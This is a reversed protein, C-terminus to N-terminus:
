KAHQKAFWTAVVAAAIWNPVIYLVALAPRAYKFSAFATYLLYAFYPVYIILSQWTKPLYSGRAATFWAASKKKVPQKKM